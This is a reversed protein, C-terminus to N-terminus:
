GQTRRANRALVWGHKDRWQVNVWDLFDAHATEQSIVIPEGRAVHAVNAAVIHPKAKMWDGSAMTGNVRPNPAKKTTPDPGRYIVAKQITQAPTSGYNQALPQPHAGDGYWPDYIWPNDAPGGAALVFHTQTGDAPNHDFDLELVVSLAPDAMARAIVGLDAPVQSWDHVAELALDPYLRALQNDNMLCGDAYLGKLAFANNLADPAVHHGYYGAMMAFSTLYCGEPGILTGACTGLRQNAWRPDRQVYVDPITRTVIPDGKAALDIASLPFGPGPCVRGVDIADHPVLPLPGRRTRIDAILAVSAAEQATTLPSTNTTDRVHEIGIAFLNPDQGAYASNATVVGAHWAVDGELVCQTVTGDTDVVYHASVASSSQSFWSVANPGATGHMVVMTIGTPRGHQGASDYGFNPSPSWTAKDYDVM